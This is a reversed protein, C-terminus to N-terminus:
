LNLLLDLSPQMSQYGGINTLRGTDHVCSGSGIGGLIHIRSEEEVGEELFCEAWFHCGLLDFGDGFCDIDLGCGVGAEFIYRQLLWFTLTFQQM